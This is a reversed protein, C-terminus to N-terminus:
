SGHDAQGLITSAYDSLLSHLYAYFPDPRRNLLSSLVAADVVVVGQLPLPQLGLALRWESGAFQSM